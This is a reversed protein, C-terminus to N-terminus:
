LDLIVLLALILQMELYEKKALLDQIEQQALLDRIRQIVELDLQGL